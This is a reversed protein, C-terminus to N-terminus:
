PAGRLRRARAEADDLRRLLEKAALEAQSVRGDVSVSEGPGRLGEPVEEHVLGRRLPQRGDDTWKGKRLARYRFSVHGLGRMAEYAAAEEAAGLYAIDAKLARSSHTGEAARKITGGGPTSGDSVVLDLNPTSAAPVVHTVARTSSAVLSLAPLTGQASTGDAPRWLLFDLSGGTTTTSHLSRIGHRYDATGARGLALQVPGTSPSLAGNRLIIGQDEADGAGMVDLWAGPTVGAGVAGSSGVAWFPTLDVGSAQFYVAAASTGHVELRASPTTTTSGSVLKGLILADGVVVTQASASAPMLLAALLLGRM